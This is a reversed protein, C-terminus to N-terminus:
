KTERMGQLTVTAAPLSASEVRLTMKGPRGAQARVIVLCYGNFANREPSRFSEFSTPDGNDTAVIEGPFSLDRGDARIKSRDPTLELRAPAGATKM